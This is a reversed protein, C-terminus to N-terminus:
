SSGAESDSLPAFLDVANGDPDHVTAYRQGWFADWPALHSHHGTAVLRDYVADVEAPSDCLFALAVRSSGTPAMWTDDFSSITSVPDWAIRLGNPLTIEVHPEAEAGESIDLGVLRYFALSVALDQAVIGIMDLRPIM